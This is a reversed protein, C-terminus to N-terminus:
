RRDGGRKRGPDEVPRWTPQDTLYRRVAQRTVEVLSRKEAAAVHRLHDHESDPLTTRIERQDRPKVTDEEASPNPIGSSRIM